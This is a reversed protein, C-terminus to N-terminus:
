NYVLNKLQLEDTVEIVGFVRCSYYGRYEKFNFIVLFEKKCNESFTKLYRYEHKRDESRLYELKDVGLKALEVYAMENIDVAEKLSISKKLSLITQHREGKDNCYFTLVVEEDYYNVPFTEQSLQIKNLFLMNKLKAM